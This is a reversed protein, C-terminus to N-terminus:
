AIHNTGSMKKSKQIDMAEFLVRATNGEPTIAYTKDIKNYQIWGEERLNQLVKYTNHRRSFFEAIENEDMGAIEDAYVAKAIVDYSLADEQYLTDLIKRPVYGRRSVKPLPKFDSLIDTRGNQFSVIRGGTRIASYFMAGTLINDLNGIELYIAIPDDGRRIEENRAEICTRSVTNSVADFGMGEGPKIRCEIGARELREKIDLCGGDYLLDILYVVPGGGLEIPSRILTDKSSEGTYIGVFIKM